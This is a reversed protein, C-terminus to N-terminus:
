RFLRMQTRLYSGTFLNMSFEVARFLKQRFVCGSFHMVSDCEALRAPADWVEDPM